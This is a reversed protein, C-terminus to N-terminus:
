AAAVWSQWSEITQFGLRAYVAHGDPSSQLWSAQAGAALGDAVVRATMAAGYGSRRYAPRTAINFVGVFDGLTVGLGTTVAQGDVDGVYCRVGPLRLVDPTILRAVLEEPFGFGAAAVTNHLRASEPALERLTLGAPPGSHTVGAPDECVMLPIESSRSMARAIALEALVPSSGPRLQLCYPVGAAEVQDLLQAVSGPDPDARVPWVGNLSPLAAGTMVALAGGDQRVWGGPVAGFLHAITRGVAAVVTDADIVV